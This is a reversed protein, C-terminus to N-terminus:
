SYRYTDRLIRYKEYLTILINKFRQKDTMKLHLYSFINFSEKIRLCILWIGYISIPTDVM